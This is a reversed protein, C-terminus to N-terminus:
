SSIVAGSLMQDVTRVVDRVELPKQILTAGQQELFGELEHDIVDGTMLLIRDRLEPSRELLRSYLEVGGMEPMRIDSIVIDYSSDRLEDLAAKGNIATDVRYGRDQFLDVFLELVVQEDDVVLMRCGERMEPECVRSDLVHTDEAVPAECIPLEIHITSGQGIESSAWTRGGHEKIVGYAVSLGLGTSHGPRRTTFFPDFVRELTEQNMGVGSDTIEILISSGSVSSSIRLRCARDLKSDMAKQANGILSLIVQQLVAGLAVLLVSRMYVIHRRKDRAPSTPQHGIQRALRAIL